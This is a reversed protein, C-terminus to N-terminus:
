DNLSLSSLLRDAEAIDKRRIALADRIASASAPAAFHRHHVVKTTSRRAAKKAAKKKAM